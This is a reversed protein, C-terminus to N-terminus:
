ASVSEDDGAMQFHKLVRARTDRRLHLSIETEPNLGEARFVADAFADVDTGPNQELRIQAEVPLCFGLDVYLESLLREAQRPTVGNM